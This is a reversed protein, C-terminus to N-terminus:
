VAAHVFPPPAPAAFLYGQGYVVGLAALAELDEATEIGEAIITAGSKEAFSILGAALAQQSQDGAIGNVLSVDLKIFDPALRLIHRLSAFGAGADDVAVRVGRSRSHALRRNLADYDETPM